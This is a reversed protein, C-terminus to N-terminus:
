LAGEQHEADAGEEKSNLGSLLEQQLTLCRERLRDNEKLIEQCDDKQQKLALQSRELAREQM